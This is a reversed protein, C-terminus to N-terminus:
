GVRQFDGGSYRGTILLTYKLRITPILSEQSRFTLSLRHDPQIYFCYHHVICFMKLSYLKVLDVIKRQARFLTSQAQVVDCQPLELGYGLAPAQFSHSRNRSFGNGECNNNNTHILYTSVDIHSLRCCRYDMLLHSSDRFFSQWIMFFVVALSSQHTVKVAGSAWQHFSRVVDGKDIYDEGRM